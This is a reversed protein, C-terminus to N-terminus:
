GSSDCLRDGQRIWPGSDLQVPLQRHTGDTTLISLSAKADGAVHDCDLFAAVKAVSTGGPPVRQRITGTEVTMGPQDASFGLVDIPKPGANVVTVHGVLHVSVVRGNATTATTAEDGIWGRMDPLVVVSVQSDLAKLNRREQWRYTGLGGAAAGVALLLVASVAQRGRRVTAIAPPATDDGLHDLDITVRAGRVDM